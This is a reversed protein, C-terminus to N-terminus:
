KHVVNLRESEGHIAQVANNLLKYFNIEFKNEAYNQFVINTVWYASM